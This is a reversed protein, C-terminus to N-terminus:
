VTIEEEQLLVPLTGGGIDVWRISPFEIKIRQILRPTDVTYINGYDTLIYITGNSTGTHIALISESFGFSRVYLARGSRVLTGPVLVHPASSAHGQFYMIGGVFCEALLHVFLEGHRYMECPRLPLCYRGVHRACVQHSVTRRQQITTAPRDCGRISCLTPVAPLFLVTSNTITRVIHVLHQIADYERLHVWRRGYENGVGITVPRPFIWRQVTRFTQAADTATNPCREYKTLGWVTGALAIDNERPGPSGCPLIKYPEAGQDTHSSYEFMFVINQQRNLVLESFGATGKFVHETYGGRYRLASMTAFTRVIRVDYTSGESFITHM